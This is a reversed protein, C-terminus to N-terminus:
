IGESKNKIELTRITKRFFDRERQPPVLQILFNGSPGANSKSKPFEYEPHADPMARIKPKTRRTDTLLGRM